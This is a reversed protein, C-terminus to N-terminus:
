KRFLKCSSDGLKWGPNEPHCEGSARTHPKWAGEPQSLRDIVIDLVDLSWVAAGHSAKVEINEANEAKPNLCSQWHAIGDVKSYIATTPVPPPTVARKAMDEDNLLPNGPNLRNFLARLTKPVGEKNLGAGFPSTITIVNRVMEPYERALERAYIGGLSHGVLSVKKGGNEKFVEELRNRLREAMEDTLGLNRRGGLDYVNFGAERLGDRLGSTMQGNGTFGPLILVPHGDGSLPQQAAKDKKRKKKVRKHRVYEAAARFPETTNQIHRKIGM